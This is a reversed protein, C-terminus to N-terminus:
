VCVDITCLVMAWYGVIVTATVSSSNLRQDYAECMEQPKMPGIQSNSLM